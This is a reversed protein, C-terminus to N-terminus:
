PVLRGRLEVVEAAALEERLEASHRYTRAPLRRASIDLGIASGGFPDPTVRLVESDRSVTWEDFRQDENWGTCFMLSILDGLRVFRYDALLDGLRGGANRLLDDRMVEM